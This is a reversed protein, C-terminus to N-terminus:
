SREKLVKYLIGGAVFPALAFAFIARAGWPIDSEETDVHEIAFGLCLLWFLYIM